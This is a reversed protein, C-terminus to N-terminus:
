VITYYQSGNQEQTCDQVLFDYIDNKKLEKSNEAM